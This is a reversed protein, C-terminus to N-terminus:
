GNQELNINAFTNFTKQLSESTMRGAMPIEKEKQASSKEKKFKLDNNYWTELRRELSWTKELEQKFKTKSKNPETWYSFFANLLDKSYIKSFSELTSAFKLKRSEMNEKELENEIEKELEVEYKSVMGFGKRLTEFGEETRDLTTSKLSKLDIPLDNYCDIASKKMNFNYNQHKLFNLLIVRNSKYMIKNSKEFNILIDDIKSKNIGTEFSIKNISIEYVGLMNTRENTILYIFLLKEDVKLDEFWTDCWISTNISRLKSM